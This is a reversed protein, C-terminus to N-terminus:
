PTASETEYRDLICYVTKGGAPPYFYAWEKSLAQVLILGRGSEAEPDAQAIVPPRHDQDSVEIVIRDPQCRLTQIITAPGICGPTTGGNAACANTILESVLLVSIEIIDEPVDWAGLVVQAHRRAWFPSSPRAALEIWAAASGSGAHAAPARQAEDRTCRTGM